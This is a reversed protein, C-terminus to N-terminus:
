VFVSYTISQTVPGAKGVSDNVSPMLLRFTGEVGPKFFLLVISLKSFLLTFTNLLVVSSSM